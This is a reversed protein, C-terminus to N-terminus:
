SGNRLGKKLEGEPEGGGVRELIFLERGDGEETRMADPRKGGKRNWCIRLKDGNVEFIAPIPKGDSDILDLANKAEKPKFSYPQYTLKLRLLGETEFMAYANGAFYFVRCQKFFDPSADAEKFLQGDRELAVTRWVGAIAGNGGAGAQPVARRAFTHVVFGGPAPWVKTPRLLTNGRDNVCIDMSEGFQRYLCRLTRGNGPDVLDLHDAPEGLVLRSHFVVPGAAGSVRFCDESSVILWKRLRAMSEPERLAMRGGDSLLDTQEWVGQLSKLRAPYEAATRPGPADARQAAGPGATALLLAGTALLAFNRAM